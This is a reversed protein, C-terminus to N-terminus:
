SFLKKIGLHIDVGVGLFVNSSNNRCPTFLMSTGLTLGEKRWLELIETLSCRGEKSYYIKESAVMELPVTQRQWSRQSHCLGGALQVGPLQGLLVVAEVTPSFYSLQM